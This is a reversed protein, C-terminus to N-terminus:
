PLRIILRHSRSAGWQSCLCLCNLMEPFDTHICIPKLANCINLAFEIILLYILCWSNNLRLDKKALNKKQSRLQCAGGWFPISFRFSIGSHSCVYLNPRHSYSHRTHCKWVEIAEMFMLCEVVFLLSLGNHFHGKKLFMLLLVSRIVYWGSM